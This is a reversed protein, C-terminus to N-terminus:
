KKTYSYVMCYPLTSYEKRIFAKFFALFDTMTKTSYCGKNPDMMFVRGARVCVALAHSYENSYIVIVGYGTDSIKALALDPGYETSIYTDTIHKAESTSSCVLKFELMAADFAKKWDGSVVANVCRAVMGLGIHDNLFATFGSEKGIMARELFVACIGACCGPAGGIGSTMGEYEEFDDMQVFPYLMSGAVLLEPSLGASLEKKVSTEEQM